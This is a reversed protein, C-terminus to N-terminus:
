PNVQRSAGPPHDILAFSVAQELNMLRGLTWAATFVGTELERQVGEILREYLDHSTLRYGAPFSQLAAECAALLRAAVDFRCSQVEYEVLHVISELVTARDRTGWIIQLSQKLLEGAREDDRQRLAIRGLQQLAFAIGRREGIAKGVALEEETLMAAQELDGRRLAIEALNNLSYIAQFKDGTQRGIELKQQYYKFASDHDGSDFAVNGLGNLM